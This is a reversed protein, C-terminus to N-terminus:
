SEDLLDCEGDMLDQLAQEVDMIFRFVLHDFFPLGEGTRFYSPNPALNIHEGPIWEEIQYAGYALPKRSAIEANFIEGLPIMELVHKPLPRFFFEAAQSYRFGPIGRWEISKSDTSHYSHTHRVLDPLVGPFLNQALQYAFVSDHATVPTGDQWTVGDRIRFNVITQSIEVPDSGAYVQACESSECGSPFYAAGEALNTLQNDAGVLLDGPYLLVNEFRVGGNETSPINELIVPHHTFGVIDVPGDYIAEWIARSSSSASGYLFLTGPENAM